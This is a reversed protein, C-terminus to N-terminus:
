AVLYLIQCYDNMSLSMIDTIFDLRFDPSHAGYLVRIM